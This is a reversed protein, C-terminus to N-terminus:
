PCGAVLLEVRGNEKHVKVVRDVPISATLKYTCLCEVPDGITVPARTTATAPLLFRVRGLTSPTVTTGSQTATPIATTVIASKIPERVWDDLEIVQGADGLEGVYVGAGGVCRLGRVAAVLALLWRRSLRSGVPPPELQNANM